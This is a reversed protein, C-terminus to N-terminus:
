IHIIESCIETENDNLMNKIGDSDAYSAALVQYVSDPGCTSSSYIMPIDGIKKSKGGNLLHPINEIEAQEANLISQRARHVRVNNKNDLRADENQGRWCEEKLNSCEEMTVNDKIPTSYEVPDHTKAKKSKKTNATNGKKKENIDAMLAKFKGKTIEISRDIWSDM